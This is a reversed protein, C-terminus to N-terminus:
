DGMEERLGPVRELVARLRVLARVYRKTAASKTLGLRNAVDDNSLAEFHRLVLVERDTPELEDLATRLLEGTEHRIASQSPTSQRGALRTALTDSGSGADMPVERDVARAETALYRRHVEILRQEALLRVWVGFPMDAQKAFHQQRHDAALYIEQVVDSASVRGHLRRDLRQEVWRHLREAHEDLLMALAARNGERVLKERLDPAPAAPDTVTLAGLRESSVSRSPIGWKWQLRGIDNWYAIAITAM